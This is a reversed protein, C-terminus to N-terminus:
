EVPDAPYRFHAEIKFDFLVNEWKVTSSGLHHVVWPGGGRHIPGPVVIGVIGILGPLAAAAVAAVTFRRSWSRVKEFVPKM